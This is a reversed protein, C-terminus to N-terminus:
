ADAALTDLRLFLDSATGFDKASIIRCDIAIPVMASRGEWELTPTLRTLEVVQVKARLEQYSTAPPAVALFACPSWRFLKDFGPLSQGLHLVVKLLVQDGRSYGFKANILALRKVIFLALFSDDSQGLARALELEAYARSALGTLPDVVHMSAPARSPDIARGSAQSEPNGVVELIETRASTIQALLRVKAAELEEQSSIATIQEELTNWREAALTLGSKQRGIVENTQAEYKSLVEVASDVVQRANANGQLQSELAALQARFQQGDAGEAVVPHNQIGRLLIRLCDELPVQESPKSPPQKSTPQM